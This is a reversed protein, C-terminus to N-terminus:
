RYNWNGDVLIRRWGLLSELSFTPSGTYNSGDRAGIELAIGRRLGWFYKEVAEVVLPSRESSGSMIDKFISIEADHSGDDPVFTVVTQHDHFVDMWDKPTYVSSNGKVHHIGHKHNTVLPKGLGHKHHHNSNNGFVFAFLVVHLLYFHFVLRAM